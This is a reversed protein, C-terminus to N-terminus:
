IPMYAASATRCPRKSNEKEAAVLMNPVLALWFIRSFAIHFTKVDGTIKKSVVGNPLIVRLNVFSM